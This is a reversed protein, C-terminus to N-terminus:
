TQLPGAINLTGVTALSSMDVSRLQPNRWIDLSGDVDSLSPLNISSLQKNESIEITTDRISTLNPLDLTRFSNDAILQRAEMGGSQPALLTRLQQARLIAVGDLNLSGQVVDMSLSLNPRNGRVNIDTRLMFYGKLNVDDLDRNDQLVVSAATPFANDLV